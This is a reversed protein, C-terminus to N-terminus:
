VTILVAMIEKAQRHTQRIVLAAPLQEALGLAAVAVQAPMGPKLTDETAEKEAAEEAVLLLLRPFFRTTEPARKPQRFLVAQEPLVELAL